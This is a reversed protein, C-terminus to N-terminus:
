KGQPLTRTQCEPKTKQQKWRWGSAFGLFRIEIHIGGWFWCRRSCIQWRLSSTTFINAFYSKNICSTQQKRLINRSKSSCNWFRQYQCFCLWGGGLFIGLRLFLPVFATKYSSSVPSCHDWGQTPNGHLAPLSADSLPSIDIIPSDIMRSMVATVVSVHRSPFTSWVLRWAWVVGGPDLDSRYFITAAGLARFVKGRLRSGMKRFNSKMITITMTRSGGRGWEM